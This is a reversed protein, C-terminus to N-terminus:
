SHLLENLRQLNTHYDDVLDIGFIMCLNEIGEKSLQILIQPTLEMGDLILNHILIKSLDKISIKEVQDQSILETEIGVDILNERSGNQISRLIEMHILVPNKGADTNGLYIKTNGEDTHDEYLIMTACDPTDPWNSNPKRNLDVEAFLADLDGVGGELDKIRNQKKLDFRALQNAVTHQKALLAIAEQIKVIADILIPNSQQIYNGAVAISGEGIAAVTDKASNFQMIEDGPINQEVDGGRAM